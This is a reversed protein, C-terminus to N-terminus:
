TWSKASVGWAGFLTEATGGMVARRDKDDEIWSSVTDVTGYAPPEELVFPFDSGYMLRDAGFAALLPEFREKRVRDYPFADNLRFLASIKVYVSPHSALSLLKDFAVSDDLVTFAFHDLILKTTPAARILALIDDYHLSLGQFCMVGVPMNLEACRRYVSLGAGQAMSEWQREGIKPWLYPNFRVGVFGQLVLEDLRTLADKEPLSPDYLLMGKFRHPNAKITQAVYSHDFRHNIPQVILSGDVGNAKMQNLLYAASARDALNSPPPQAYPFGKAAESTDAWVHLHTDIVKVGAGSLSMANSVLFSASSFAALAGKRTLVSALKM